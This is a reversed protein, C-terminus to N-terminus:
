LRKGLFGFAGGLGAPPTRGAQLRVFHGAGWLLFVNQALFGIVRYHGIWDHPFLYSLPFACTTLVAATVFRWDTGYLALFPALWVFYQPSFVKASLILTLLLLLAGAEVDLRGRGVAILVALGVGIAGLEGVVVFINALRTTVDLAGFAVRYRYDGTLVAALDGPLSGVNPPRHVFFSVWTVSGKGIWLLMVPAMALAAGVLARDWRWRGSQRWEAVLWLPWFIAPFIKLWVGLLSWGWAGRWHGDRAHLLALFACLAAFIDYRQLVIFGTALVLYLATRRRWGITEERDGTSLSLLALCALGSLTMFAPRYGWPLLLPMLFVGLAPAPYERPWAQGPHALAARAYHAYELVDTTPIALNALFLGALVLGSWLGAHREFGKM